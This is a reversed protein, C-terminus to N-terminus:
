LSQLFKGEWEFEVWLDMKESYDPEKIGTKMEQIEYFLGGEMDNWLGKSGIYFWLPM